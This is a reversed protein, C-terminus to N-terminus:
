SEADLGPSTEARRLRTRGHSARRLVPRPFRAYWAVTDDGNLASVVDCDGDGDVDIAFVVRAGDRMTTIIREAFSGSGDNDYWAITDIDYSASLADTNGDGDVDIAFVSTAEEAAVDIVRATFSASGDNEYWAVTNDDYEAALVDVDGDDDLDVAFVARAGGALTTVVKEFFAVSACSVPTAAANAVCIVLLAVRRAAM